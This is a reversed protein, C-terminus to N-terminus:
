MIVGFTYKRDLAACVTTSWRATRTRGDEELVKSAGLESISPCSIRKVNPRRWVGLVEGIRPRLDNRAHPSLYSFGLTTPVISDIIWIQFSANFM